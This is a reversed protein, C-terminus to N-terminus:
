GNKGGFIYGYGYKTRIYNPKKVDDEIKNRLKKIFVDISRDFGEFNNGFAKEIIQQRTLPIGTNLFLYYLLEYERTTIPIEIDYKTLIKTKSNLKLAQYELVLGDTKYLRKILVNVRSVLEKPSFPKCVYDDAGYDFGKIRDDELVMATLMIIPLDSTLRIRKLVEFGDIGQMSVDLIALHPSFENFDALADFGNQYCRVEYGVKELYLTLMKSVTREDELIMIKYAM